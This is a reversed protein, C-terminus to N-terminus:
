GARVPGAPAPCAREIAATLARRSPQEVASWALAAVTISAVVQVCFTWLGQWQEGDGILVVAVLVHWLYISYSREGLWRLTRSTLVMDIPRPLRHDAVAGVVIASCISVTPIAFMLATRPAEYWRPTAALAAGVVVAAGIVVPRPVVFRRGPTTIGLAAGLLLGDLRGPTALYVTWASSEFLGLMMARTAISLAAGGILVVTILKPARTVILGLVLPLLVYFQWEISLSWLHQTATTQPGHVIMEINAVQLLSAILARPDPRSGTALLAATSVTLYTVLAPLLRAARRALFEATTSGSARRRAWTTTVVFGSVVFFIDVGLWGGGLPAVGVHYGVVALVALGRLGDLAEWHM